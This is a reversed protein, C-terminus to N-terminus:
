GIGHIRFAGVRAFIPRRPESIGLAVSIGPVTIQRPRPQISRPLNKPSGALIKPYDGSRSHPPMDDSHQPASRKPSRVTPQWNAENRPTLPIEEPYPLLASVCYRKGRKLTEGCTGCIRPLRPGLHAAAISEGGKAQRRRSQTLRTAPYIQRAPKRLTSWLARSVWEAVPAVARGWTQATESLRVAFSGILRCNGDSKEFFWGRHLAERSIWDFLYADVQPRAAEMLDLALSDRSPADMHLVGIGPDLGRAALALRSESELIAYLYNVTQHRLRLCTHQTRFM